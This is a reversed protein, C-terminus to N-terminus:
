ESEFSASAITRSLDISAFTNGSRALDTAHLMLRTSCIVEAWDRQQTSTLFPQLTCLRHGVDKPRYRKRVAREGYWVEMERFDNIRATVHGCQIEITERVGEAPENRSSLVVTVLDGRGTRLTLSFNDDPEAASAPLHHLQMDHPLEGWVATLLHVALDLWHGANGSIRTGEEAQRYWHDAPIRHGHIHCTMSIPSQLGSLAQRLQIIAASFPRNYGAWIRGSNAHVASELLALDSWSTCIPKEIFVDLGRQLATAAYAAHSAHNSAVYVIRCSPNSFVEDAKQVVRRFRYAHALGEAQAEDVDYADLFVPGRTRYIFYCLTGFAAQGCGIVSIAPEGRRARAGVIWKSGRRTRGATKVLTRRWGYMRAYRWLKLWRTRPTPPITNM